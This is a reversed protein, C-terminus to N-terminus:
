RINPFIYIMFIVSVTHAYIVHIGCPDCRDDGSLNVCFNFTVSMYIGARSSCPFSWRGAEQQPLYKEFTDSSTAGYISCPQSDDFRCIM